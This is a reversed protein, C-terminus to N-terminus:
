FAHSPCHLPVTTFGSATVGLSQLKIRIGLPYILSMVGAYHGRVKVCTGYYAITPTFYTHECAQLM